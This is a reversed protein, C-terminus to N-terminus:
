ISNDGNLDYQPAHSGFNLLIYLLDADDVLNNGDVDGNLLRVQIQAPQDVELAVSPVRGFLSNHIRIKVDHVGVPTESLELTGDPNLAAITEYKLEGDQYFQVIADRGGYDGNWGDVDGGAWLFGGLPGFATLRGDGNVVYVTGDGGIAPSAYWNATGISAQWRVLGSSPALAYVTGGNGGVAYVVGDAGVAPTSGRYAARHRWLLSGAQTYARLEGGSHTMYVRDNTIAVGSEVVANVPIAWQQTGATSVSRFMGDWAGFFIRNGAIGVTGQVPYFVPFRWRFTGNPNIANLHRASGVYIAGDEGFCPTSNAETDLYLRWALTGDPNICYLYGGPIQGNTVYIRGDPGIAPSSRVEAGGLYFSWLLSGNTPNLAVLIADGPNVLAYVTGDAGIAPTSNAASYGANWLWRRQGNPRVAHVGNTAGFYITGDAAVVPSSYSRSGGNYTWRVSGNTPAGHTARRTNQYDKGLAPWPANPQLQAWGVGICLSLGVLAITRM